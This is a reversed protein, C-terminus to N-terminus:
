NTNSKESNCNNIFYEKFSESVELIELINDEIFIKKFEKIEEILKSKHLDEVYNQNHLKKLILQEKAWIPKIKKSFINDKRFFSIKWWLSDQM